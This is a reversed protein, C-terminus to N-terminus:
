YTSHQIIETVEEWCIEPLFEPLFYFILFITMFIESDEKFQLDQRKLVFNVYSVVDM